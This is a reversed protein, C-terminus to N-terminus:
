GVAHGTVLLIFRLLVMVFAIATGAMDCSIPLRQSQIVRCFGVTFGAM